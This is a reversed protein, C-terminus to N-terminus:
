PTRERAAPASPTAPSRAPDPVVEILLPPSYNSELQPTSRIKVRMNYVGTEVNKLAEAFSVKTEGPEVPQPLELIVWRVPEGDPVEFRFVVTRLPAGSYSAGARDLGSWTFSFDKVMWAGVKEPQPQPGPEDLAIVIRIGTYGIAVCLLCVWMGSLMDLLRM